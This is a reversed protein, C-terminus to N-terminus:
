REFAVYVVRGGRIVKFRVVEGQKMAKIAVDFQGVDKIASSGVETIVDRQRLGSGKAPSEEDIATVVVGDSSKAGLQRALSEGLAKVEVGLESLEPSPAARSKTKFSPPTQNPLEELEVDYTLEKGGRVLEIPVSRGTGATSALWPLQDSTRIRKGDFTLIVDGSLLGADEAPSGDIVETVLAGGSTKLGFSKALNPTVEQIRIGLWTRIIYGNRQLQPVLTKVINIPIAFGIGQGQRNVATNIGIVQGDLSILPGGSNGPNISADTQIFDSYLDKGSPALNRRGLASVIGSTVTHSLGLPNGIAVVNEGVRVSDSNGLPVVPFKGKAENIIRMLAVDTRPDVGIIEAELERNDLLRVRIAQAGEVVHNNTLFYGSPHIIFGTGQGLRADSFEDAGFLGTLSDGGYNVIINVVAPSVDEALEAVSSAKLPANTRGSPKGEVWLNEVTQASATAPAVACLLFMVSVFIPYNKLPM